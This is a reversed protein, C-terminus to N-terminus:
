QMSHRTLSDSVEGECLLLSWTFLGFTALIGTSLTLSEGPGSVEWRILSVPHLQAWLATGGYARQVGVKVAFVPSLDSDALTQLLHKPPLESASGLVSSLRRAHAQARDTTM